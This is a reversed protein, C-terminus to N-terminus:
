GIQSDESKRRSSKTALRFIVPILVVVAVILMFKAAGIEYISQAISSQISLAGDIIPNEIAEGRLSTLEYISYLILYGGVTLLLFSTFRSVILYFRGSNFRSVKSLAVTTLAVVLVSSSMGIGYFFFSTFISTLSSSTLASGTVAVFPGITCSLSALAYTIGYGIQTFFDKTPSINPNIFKRILLNKGMFMFIALIILASGMFLTVYPLYKEISNTFPSILLAFSGFVAVLGIAMAFSFKFARLYARTTSNKGEPNTEGLVLMGIYAPLLAFGCPNFSALIGALLAITVQSSSM